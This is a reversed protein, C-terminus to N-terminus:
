FRYNLLEDLSCIRDIGVLHAHNDFPDFLIARGIGAARAGLVDNVFGDGVHWCNEGPLGLADFAARFPEPRPKEFGVEASDIVTDFYELLGFKRLDDRVTGASNSVVGLPMELSLRRLVEVAAEDLRGYFDDRAYGRLCAEVAETGELDLFSALARAVRIEAPIGLPLVHHSAETALVLAQEIVRQDLGGVDLGAVALEDCMVQASGHILTFGADFLIARPPPLPATM